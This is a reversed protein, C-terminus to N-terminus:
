SMARARAGDDAAVVERVPQRGAALRSVNWFTLYESMADVSRSRAPGARGVDVLGVPVEVVDELGFWDSRSKRYPRARWIPKSQRTSPSFSRNLFGISDDVPGPSPSRPSRSAVAAATHAAVQELEAGPDAGDGLDALDFTRPQSESPPLRDDALGVGRRGVGLQRHRRRLEAVLDAALRLDDDVVRDVVLLRRVCSAVAVASCTPLAAKSAVATATPEGVSLAPTATLMLPTSGVRSPLHTIEPVRWSNPSPRVAGVELERGGPGNAGPSM